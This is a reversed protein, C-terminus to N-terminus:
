EYPAYLNTSNPQHLMAHSTTAPARARAPLDLAEKPEDLAEKPEIDDRGNRTAASPATKSTPAPMSPDTTARMTINWRASVTTLMSGYRRTRSISRTTPGWGTMTATSSSRALWHATYKKRRWEM